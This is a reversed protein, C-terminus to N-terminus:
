ARLLVVQVHELVCASSHQGAAPVSSETMLSL